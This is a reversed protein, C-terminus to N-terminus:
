GKVQISEREELKLERWNWLLYINKLTDITSLNYNRDRYNAKSKLKAKRKTEKRGM